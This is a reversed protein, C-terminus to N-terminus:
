EHNAHSATEHGPMPSERLCTMERVWALYRRGQEPPMARSVAFFHRLMEEQCLARVGARERLLSVLEPSVESASELLHDLEQNLTEIQMCREACQPLYAEHLTVIRSFEKAGLGFEDKLWQLEPQDSHLWKRSEATGMLFFCAYAAGGVILGALLILLGRKM